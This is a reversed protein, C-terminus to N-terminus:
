GNLVHQHMATLYFGIRISKMFNPMRQMTKNNANRIDKRYTLSVAPELTSM